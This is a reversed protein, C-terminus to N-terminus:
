KALAQGVARIVLGVGISFGGILLVMPLIGLSEELHALDVIGMVIVGASCLGSATVWLMGIAILAVGMFRKITSFGSPRHTM